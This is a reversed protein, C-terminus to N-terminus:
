DEAREIPTILIFLGFEPNDLYHLEGSRMRRRQQLRISETAVYYRNADESIAATELSPQEAALSLGGFPELEASADDGNASDEILRFPNNTRSYRILQLDTNLHLYREVYLELYGQLEPQRGHTEGGQLFIPEVADRGPVPQIWGQHFLLRYDDAERLAEREAALRYEPETLTMFPELESEGLLRPEDPVANDLTPPRENELDLANDLRAVTQRSELSPYTPWQEPSEPRYDPQEFVLVEIQFWREEETQEDPTEALTFPLALGTILVVTATKLTM